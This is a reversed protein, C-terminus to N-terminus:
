GLGQFRLQNKVWNLDGFSDRVEQTNEHFLVYGETQDGTRESLMTAFDEKSLSGEPEWAGDEGLGYALFADGELLYYAGQSPDGYFLYLSEEEEESMVYVVGRARYYYVPAEEEDKEDIEVFVGETGDLSTYLCTGDQDTAFLDPITNENLNVLCFQSLPVRDENEGRCAGEELLRVYAQLAHQSEENAIAETLDDERKQIADLDAQKLENAGVFSVGGVLIVLCLVFTGGPLLWRNKM